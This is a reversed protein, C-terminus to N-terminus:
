PEVEGGLAALFAGPDDGVDDLTLGPGLAQSRKIEKDLQARLEREERAMVAREHRRMARYRASRSAHSM